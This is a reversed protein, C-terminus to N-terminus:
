ELTGKTYIAMNESPTHKMEDNDNRFFAVKSHFM